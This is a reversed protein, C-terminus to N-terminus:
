GASDVNNEIRLIRMDEEGRHPFAIARRPHEVAATGLVTEVTRVVVSRGPLADFAVTDGLAREAADANRNGAGIGIDNVREDFGLLAAEVAAVVAAGIPRQDVVIVTEALAGPIEGM